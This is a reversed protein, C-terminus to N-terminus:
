VEFETMSADDTQTVVDTQVMSLMDASDMEIEPYKQEVEFHAGQGTEDVSSWPGFNCVCTLGEMAPGVGPTDDPWFYTPLGGFLVGEYASITVYGDMRFISDAPVSDDFSVACGADTEVYPWNPGVFQAMGDYSVNTALQISDPEYYYVCKSDTTAPGGLTDGARANTIIIAPLDAGNAPVNSGYDINELLSLMIACTPEAVSAEESAVTDIRDSEMEPLSQEVEFHAGQGTEDVSSWPGFNCVCTLGEMAPGVGPTDDPWFYTPLGGFLVGEYVSVTVYGDMRFISDAPVSDDFSVACGADTEVYPWNPGVFQAMGDYSVNTALQISDPEYYYVCKSDTSAPGGLTDGARANTIIVAPLDAGNAPVNPGYDVDELLSLTIDCAADAFTALAAISAVMTRTYMM